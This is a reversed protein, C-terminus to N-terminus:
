CLTRDAAYLAVGLTTINTDFINKQMAGLRGRLSTVDNIAEKLIDVLTSGPVSPSVDLLSKGGGSGLEFLKGAVGGLRATNM